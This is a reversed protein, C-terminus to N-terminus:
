FFKKLAPLVDGFFLVALVVGSMVAILLMGIFRTLGKLPTHSPPDGDFIELSNQRREELTWGNKAYFSLDLVVKRWIYVFHVSLICFVVSKVIEEDSM